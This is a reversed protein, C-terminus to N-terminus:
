KSAALSRVNGRAALVVRVFNNSSHRATCPTACPPFRCGNVVEYERDHGRCVHGERTDCGLMKLCWRAVTWDPWIKGIEYRTVRTHSLMGSGRLNVPPMLNRGDRSSRRFRYGKFSVNRSARNVLSGTSKKKKKLSTVRRSKPGAPDSRGKSYISTQRLLVHAHIYKTTRQFYSSWIKGYVLYAFCLNRRKYKLFFSM